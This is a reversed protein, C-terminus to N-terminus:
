SSASAAPAAGAEGRAARREEKANRLCFTCLHHRFRAHGCVQCTLIHEQPAEFRENMRMRSKSISRKKKPVPGMLLFGDYDLVSGSSNNSVTNSDCGIGDLALQMDCHHHHQHHHDHNGNEQPLSLSLQVAQLRERLWVFAAAAASQPQSQLQVQARMRLVLWQMHLTQRYAALM